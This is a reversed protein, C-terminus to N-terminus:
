RAAGAGVRVLPALPNDRYRDHVDDGVRFYLAQYSRLGRRDDSLFEADALVSVFCSELEDTSDILQRLVEYLDLTAPTSYNLGDDRDGRRTNQAYRTVDLILLLGRGGARRVWHTLSLLMAMGTHRGVRQFILARKVSSVLRLEGRLWELVADHLAPDEDPDLRALCLQIMALRFEHTMAYDRFIDSEIASRLEARLLKEERANLDAVTALDVAGGPVSALQLGREALLRRVFTSALADWDVQRAVAGFLKDALHLKTTTADVAAFQFELEAAFTRLGECVQRGDDRTAPVVFRVAGGGAAVFTELYEARIVQLWELPHM